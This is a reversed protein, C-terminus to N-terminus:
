KLKFIAFSFEIRDEKIKYRDNLEPGCAATGVGSMKYDLYLYRKGNNKMENRHKRYEDWSFCDYCFSFDSNGQICIQDQDLVLYVTGYHDNANQPVINRYNDQIHITHFGFASACHRDIYNEGELGLYSVSGYNDPLQFRIGFRLPGDFCMIKKAVFNMLVKDKKVEYTIKVEYFPSLGSVGLYGKYITLSPSEEKSFLYFKAYKIRLNDYENRLKIDNSIYPRTLVFEMNKFIPKDGLSIASILGENVNCQWNANESELVFSQLPRCIISKESILVNKKNYLKITYSNYNFDAKPYDLLRASAKAELDIHFDKTQTRKGNVLFDVEFRFENLNNFDFRNKVYISNDKIEYEVPAYCEKVEKVQPTLSRDLNVLGDCCFDGDSFEEAFDGGYCELNNQVIYHNTWEWIFAGTFNDYKWFPVMYDSLEGLSNGMAHSFECLVFPRTLKPVEENCYEIPPYMRSYVGLVDEEFFGNGDVNRYSGEYHLPRDDYEKIKKGMDILVDSFGSENGLSWMLISPHNMYTIVNSLQRELIQDYFDPNSIVEDWLKMDYKGNQRVVGHTELDAESIVYIGNQDCLDYFYPDAPYHSTRVANINLSKFLEIDKEMLARTEAYGNLSSSHRNVGHMKIIRGNLLFQNGKIEIKRIGVKQRIVEKNYEITLDYLNPEESNWLKPNPVEFWVNKGKTQIRVGFGELTVDAEKDLDVYVIGKTSVIDTRIKFNSIRDKERKVLYIPRHIGSLRIKDQDELYSSPTFKLVIIKFENKGDFVKDTIDFQHVAHSINSFGAFEDNVFLYYANDIGEIQILVDKKDKKLIIKKTYIQASTKKLIHPPFYPFLYRDNSYIPTGDGDLEGLFPLQIKKGSHIKLAQDFDFEEQYYYEWDLLVEKFGKDVDFYNTLPLAGISTTPIKYLENINM